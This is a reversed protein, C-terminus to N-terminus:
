RMTDWCLFHFNDSKIKFHALLIVACTPATDLVTYLQLTAYGGLQFVLASGSIHERGVAGTRTPKHCRRSQLHQHLQPMSGGPAWGWGPARPAAILWGTGGAEKKKRWRDVLAIRCWPYGSRTSPADERQGAAPLWHARDSRFCRARILQATRPPMRYGLLLLAPHRENNKISASHNILIYKIYIRVDQTCWPLTNCSNDPLDFLWRQGRKFYYLM